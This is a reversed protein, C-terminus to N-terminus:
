LQILINKDGVNENLSNNNPFSSWMHGCQHCIWSEEYINLTEKYNKLEQKYRPQRRRFWWVLFGISPILFTGLSLLVALILFPGSILLLFDIFIPPSPPSCKAALPTQTTTKTKTKTTFTDLPNRPSFLNPSTKGESTAVGDSTGAEYVLRQRQINKSSCAPCQM